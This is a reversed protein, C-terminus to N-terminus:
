FSNDRPYALIAVLGVIVLVAVVGIAIWFLLGGNM